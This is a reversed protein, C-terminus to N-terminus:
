LEVCDSTGRGCDTVGNYDGWGESEVQVDEYDPKEGRQFDQLVMLNGSALGFHVGAAYNM